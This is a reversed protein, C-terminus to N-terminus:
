DVVDEDIYRLFASSRWEGACLITGLSSGKKAMDTARGARFGKVTLNVVWPFELLILMRQITALFQPLTFPFIQFRCAQWGFVIGNSARLVFHYWIGQVYVEADFM